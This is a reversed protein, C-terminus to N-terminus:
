RTPIKLAMGPAIDNPNDLKQRNARWILRWLKESGYAAKAIKRLSDGKKVTYSTGVLASAPRTSASRSPRTAAPRTTAITGYTSLGSSSTGSSSTGSSAPLKIKAGIKLKNSNVGPNAAEIAKITTHNAKAIKGFSDGKVITYDSSGVGSSLGGSFGMGDTTHTRPTTIDPGFGSSTTPSPPEIILSSPGPNHTHSVPAGGSLSPGGGAPILPSYAPGSTPGGVTLPRGGSGPASLTVPTGPATAAPPTIFTPSGGYASAPGLLSGSGSAALAPATATAPTPPPILLGTGVTGVTGGPNAPTLAPAPSPPTEGLQTGKKNATLAFYSVVGIALVFLCILGVKVDTRM